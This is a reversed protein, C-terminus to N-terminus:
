PKQAALWGAVDRALQDPELMSIMHGAMPYDFVDVFRQGDPYTIGLRSPSTDDVRAAGLIVRLAPALARTPVVLDLDGRTLFAPVDHLNDVFALGVYNQAYWDATTPVTQKGPLLPSYPVFYGQGDPLTGLVAVLTDQLPVTDDPPSCKFGKSREGSALLPLSTLPVGLMAAARDPLTHALDAELVRQDQHATTYAFDYLSHVADDTCHCADTGACSTGTAAAVAAIQVPDFCQAQIAENEAVGGLWAELLIQGAHLSGKRKVGAIRQALVPDAYPASAWKGRLYSLIWTIRVGGYSEGMWYVPGTLQPHADLFGLVALLVDAADVYENFLDPGCDAAVGAPLVDYSYGAQRPEVYVLNAFRTLSSPNPVVAGGEIVTTPGTGYPRVIDDAFGNFLVFIPKDGADADAPRFNYFLRGTAEIDVSKGALTIARAPVELFGAEPTVPAIEAAPTSGCHLGLVALAAAAIRRM